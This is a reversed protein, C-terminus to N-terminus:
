EAEEEAAIKFFSKKGNKSCPERLSIVFTTDNSKEFDYILESEMAAIKLCMEKAQERDANDYHVQFDCGKQLIQVLENPEFSFVDEYRCKGTIFDVLDTTNAKLLDQVWGNYLTSYYIIQLKPFLSFTEHLPMSAKSFTLASVCGGTKEAVNKITKRLTTSENTRDVIYQRIYLRDFIPGDIIEDAVCTLLLTESDYILDNDSTNMEQLYSEDDGIKVLINDGLLAVFPVQKAPQLPKFGDLQQGVAIQLGYAELPTMLERFRCRLGYPLKLIPYPM